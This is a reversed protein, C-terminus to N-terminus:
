LGWRSQMTPDRPDMQYIPDGDRETGPNNWIERYHNKLAKDNIKSKSTQKGTCSDTCVKYTIEHEQQLTLDHLVPIMEMFWFGPVTVGSVTTGVTDLAGNSGGVYKDGAYKYEVVKWDRGITFWENAMQLTCIETLGYPDVSWLPNGRVYTYSNIGGLLGVPDSEIYRGTAPDYDRFYNYFLNTESDFYQGPFRPNYTFTGQGTPNSNPPTQGYPDNNDWQWVVNNNQDVIQRPTNIQDTQIYYAQPVASTVTVTIPTSTTSGGNNDTAIATLTYTGQQV